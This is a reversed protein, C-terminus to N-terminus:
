KRNLYSFRDTKEPINLQGFYHKLHFNLQDQATPKQIRYSDEELHTTSTETFIAEGEFGSFRHLVGPKLRLYNYPYLYYRHVLPNGYVPDYPKIICHDIQSKLIENMDLIDLILTGNLVLFTEDKLKHYHFAGNSSWEGNRVQIIKGCYHENNEFWYEFGWSKFNTKNYHLPVMMSKLINLSEM